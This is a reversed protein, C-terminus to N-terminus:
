LFLNKFLYTINETLIVNLESYAPKSSHPSDVVIINYFYLYFINLRHQLWMGLKMLKTHTPQASWNKTIATLM